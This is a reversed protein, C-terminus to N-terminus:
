VHLQISNKCMDILQAQCILKYLFFDELVESPKVFICKRVITKLFWLFFEGNTLKKGSFKVILFYYQKKIYIKLYINCFGM